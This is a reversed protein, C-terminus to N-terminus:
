STSIRLMTCENTIESIPLRDINENPDFTQPHREQELLKLEIGCGSDATANIAIDYSNALQLSALFYRAVEPTSQNQILNGFPLKKNSATELAEIIRSSYEHMHFAPRREAAILKPRLSRHWEAVRQELDSHERTEEGIQKIRQEVLERYNHGHNASEPTPPPTTFSEPVSSLDSEPEIIMSSNTISDDATYTFRETLPDRKGFNRQFGLLERTLSSTVAEYNDTECGRMNKLYQDFSKQFEEFEEKKMPAFLQRTPSDVKLKKHVLEYRDLLFKTLHERKKNESLNKRKRSKSKLLSIHCPLKFQTRRKPLPDPIGNEFPIPELIQQNTNDKAQTSEPTKTSTLEPEVADQTDDSTYGADADNPINYSEDINKTACSDTVTREIEESNRCETSEVIENNDLMSSYASDLQINSTDNAPTQYNPSATLSPQGFDDPTLEDVLMCNKTLQQNCRFDYKNGIVEGQTSLIEIPSSLQALNSELQTFRRTLMKLPKQAGEKLNNSKGIQNSLELSEFDNFDIVNSSKQYKKKKATTEEGNTGNNHIVLSQNLADTENQLYEVRRAYVNASNQIVLAAEGFNVSQTAKLLLFYKELSQAFNSDWEALLKAPKLLTEM